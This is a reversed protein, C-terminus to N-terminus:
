MWAWHLGVVISWDPHHSIYRDSLCAAIQLSSKELKCWAIYKVSQDILSARLYIYLYIYYTYWMFYLYNIKVPHPMSKEFHIWHSFQTMSHYQWMRIHGYWKVWVYLQALKDCLLHTGGDLKNDIVKILGEQWKTSENWVTLLM